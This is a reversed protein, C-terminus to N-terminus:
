SRGGRFSEFLILYEAMEQDGRSEEEWDIDLRQWTKNARLEERTPYHIQVTVLQDAKRSVGFGVQRMAGCGPIRITDGPQTGAKVKVTKLGYMTMVEISGGKLCIDLAVNETSLINGERMQFKQHPLVQIAVLLNGRDDGYRHGRGHLLQQYGDSTGPTLEITLRDLELEDGDLVPMIQMEDNLEYISYSVHLPRGFFADDFSVPIMMRLDLAGRNNPSGRRAAHDREKHRYEADTLMRFAHTVKEFEERRGGPKDPHHKVCLEKWRRKLDHPTPSSGVAFGLCNLADHLDQM